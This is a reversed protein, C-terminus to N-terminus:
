EEKMGLEKRLLNEIKTSFKHEKKYPARKDDGPQAFEVHKGTEREKEFM